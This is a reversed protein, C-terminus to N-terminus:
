VGPGWPAYTGFTWIHGDLNRCIVSPSQTAVGGIEEPQRMLKGFGSDVASGV